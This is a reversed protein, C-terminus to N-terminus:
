NSHGIPYSMFPEKVRTCKHVDGGKDQGLWSFTRISRIFSYQSSSETFFILSNGVVPAIIIFPDTAEGSKGSRQIINAIIVGKNEAWQSVM